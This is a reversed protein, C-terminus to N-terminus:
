ELASLLIQPHSAHIHDSAVDRHRKDTPSRGHYQLRPDNDPFIEPSNKPLADADAHAASVPPGHILLAFVCNDKQRASPAGSSRYTHSLFMALSRGRENQRAWPATSSQAFPWWFSFWSLILSISSFHAWFTAAALVSATPLSSFREPCFWLWCFPASSTLSRWM